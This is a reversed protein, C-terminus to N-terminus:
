RSLSIRRLKRWIWQHSSLSSLDPDARCSTFPANRTAEHTGEWRGRLLLEHRECGPEKAGSDDISPVLSDDQPLEQVVLADHRSEAPPEPRGVDRQATRRTRGRRREIVESIGTKSTPNFRDHNRRMIMESCFRAAPPAPFRLAPLLLTAFPFLSYRLSVAIGQRTNSVIVVHSPPLLKM